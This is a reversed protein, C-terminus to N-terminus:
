RKSCAAAENRFPSVTKIQQAFGIFNLRILREQEMRRRAADPQNGALPCFRQARFQDTGDATRLFRLTRQLGACPLHNVIAFFAYNLPSLSLRRYFLARPTHSPPFSVQSAESSQRCRRPRITLKPLAEPGTVPTL